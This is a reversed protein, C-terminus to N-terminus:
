LPIAESEVEARVRPHLCDSAVLDVKAMLIDSLAREFAGREFLGMGSHVDAVIDIDSESKDEGRTM